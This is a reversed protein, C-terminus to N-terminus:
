PAAASWRRHDIEVGLVALALVRRRMQGPERAYQLDIAIPAELAQQRTARRVLDLERETPRMAPPAEVLEVPGRARRQRLLRQAPDPLEVPDLGLDAAARGLLPTRGPLLAALRKDLGQM